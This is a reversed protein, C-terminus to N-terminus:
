DNIVNLLSEIRRDWTSDRLFEQLRERNISKPDKLMAKFEDYTTAVNLLDNFDEKLYEHYDNVVVPLGQSLYDYLKMSNVDLAADRKYLGFCVNSQKLLVNVQNPELFGFMKVNPFKQLQFEIESKYDKGIFNFTWDPHEEIVQILWSSEIWKSLTGCYTVQYNRSSNAVTKLNIRKEFVGNLILKTNKFNHDNYWNLMSRSSSLIYKAQVGAKLLLAKRKAKHHDSINPDEIINHDTDFIMECNLNLFEFDDFGKPWYCWALYNQDSTLVKPYLWRLITGNLSRTFKKLGYSEPLIPAIYINEINSNQSREQLKKNLVVKRTSRVVNIVREVNDNNALALLIAMNRRYIVNDDQNSWANDAGFYIVIM